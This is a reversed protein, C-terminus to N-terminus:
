PGGAAAALFELVLRNFEAPRELNPLHGTGAMVARRAGPVGGALADAMAQIDPRDHGGVLVLTPVALEGLRGAAPPDLDELDAEGNAYAALLMAEVRRRIEADVAEPGRGVGVVWTDVEVRAAEAHDGREVATESREWLEYLAPEAFRHGALSAGALVLTRVRGPAALALDVAARGGLSSGVVAAREVGLHDLLGALAAWTAV